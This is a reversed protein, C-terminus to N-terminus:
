RESGVPTPPGFGDLKGVRDLLEAVKGAVDALGEASGQVAATAVRMEATLATIAEAQRDLAEVLDALDAPEKEVPARSDFLLELKPINEAGPRRGAEWARVTDYAVGIRSAVEQAKIGLRQREDILWLSVPDKASRPKRV